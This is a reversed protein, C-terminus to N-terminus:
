ASSLTAEVVFGKRTYLFGQQYWVRGFSLYPPSTRQVFMGVLGVIVKPPKGIRCQM